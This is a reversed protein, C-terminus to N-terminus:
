NYSPKFDECLHNWFREMVGKADQEARAQELKQEFSSCKGDCSLRVELVDKANITGACVKDDIAKVDFTPIIPNVAQKSVMSMGKMVVGDVPIREGPLVRVIDGAKLQEVPLLWISEETEAQRIRRGIVPRIAMLKKLNDM